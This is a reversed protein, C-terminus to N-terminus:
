ALTLFAPRGHVDSNHEKRKHDTSGCANRTVALVVDCVHVGGCKPDDAGACRRNDNFRKCIVTGDSLCRCTAIQHSNGLAPPMFHPSSVLRDGPRLLM